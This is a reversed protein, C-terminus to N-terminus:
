LEDTKPQPANSVDEHASFVGCSKEYAQACLERQNECVLDTYNAIAIPFMKHVMKGMLAFGMNLEWTRWEKLQKEKIKNYKVWNENQEKNPLFQELFDHLEM